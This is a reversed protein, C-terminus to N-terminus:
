DLLDEQLSVYDRVLSRLDDRRRILSKARYEIFYPRIDPPPVTGTFLIYHLPIALEKGIQVLTDLSPNRYGRELLHLTKATIGTNRTIDSVTLQRLERFIRIREGLAILIPSREDEADVELFTGSFTDLAEIIPGTNHNVMSLADLLRRANETVKPLPPQPLEKTPYLPHSIIDDADLGLGAVLKYYSEFLVNEENEIKSIGSPLADTLHSLKLTTLKREVKVAKVKEGLLRRFEAVSDNNAQM